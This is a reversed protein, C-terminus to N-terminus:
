RGDQGRAQDQLSTSRPIKSRTRSVEAQAAASLRASYVATAAAASSSPSSSVEIQPQTTSSTSTSRRQQGGFVGGTAARHRQNRREILSLSRSVVHRRRYYVSIGCVQRQESYLVVSSPHKFILLSASKRQVSTSSASIVSGM